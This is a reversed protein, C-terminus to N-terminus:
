TSRSFQSTKKFSTEKTKSFDSVNNMVLHPPVFPNHKNVDM